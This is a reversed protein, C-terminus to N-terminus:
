QTLRRVISDFLMVLDPAEPVAGVDHPVVVIRSGTKEAVLRAAGADHYVDRLVLQVKETRMREILRELHRSTPPVGPVPELADVFRIGAWALLYTYLRHYSVVKAGSLGSLATKWGAAHRAWDATFGDARGAYYAASAPDLLTLREAVARACPPINDPSLQYHPNGAAHVDGGSRSVSDPIDLKVVAGSLDLLGNQGPQIGANHADRILPPLWGIELEAGAMVLLDAGRLKAIHSPRPVVFHPDLWGRALTEVSVRDGGIRLVLDAIWPYAAIVRVKAPAPVAAFVLLGCVVVMMYFKKM